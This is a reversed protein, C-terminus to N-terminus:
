RNEREGEGLDNAVRSQELEQAGETDSEKEELRWRGMLEDCIRNMAVRDRIGIIEHIGVGARGFYLWDQLEQDDFTLEPKIHEGLADDPYMEQYWARVFSTDHNQRIEEYASAVLVDKVNCQIEDAPIVPRLGLRTEAAREPDIEPIEKAALLVEKAGYPCEIRVCYFSGLPRPDVVSMVIDQGDRACDPDDCEGFDVAYERDRLAKLAGNIVPGYSEHEEQWAPSYNEM